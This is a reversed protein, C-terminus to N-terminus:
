EDQSPLVDIYADLPLGLERRLRESRRAFRRWDRIRQDVSEMPILFMESSVGYGAAIEDATTQQATGRELVRQLKRRVREVDDPDSTGVIRKAAGRVSDGLLSRLKDM